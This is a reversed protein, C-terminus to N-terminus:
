SKKELIDVEEPFLESAWLADALLIAEPSYNEDPSFENIILGNRMQYMGLNRGKDEDAYAINFLDNPFKESLKRIVPFPHSWATQFVFKGYKNVRVAYANWKTGWNKISWGYWTNEKGLREEDEMSVGGTAKFADSDAPMPILNNFDFQSCESKVANQIEQFDTSNDEEKVTIINIIHNPM